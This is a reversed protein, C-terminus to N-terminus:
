GQQQQAPEVGIQSLYWHETPAYRAHLRATYSGLMALRQLVPWHIWVLAALMGARLMRLLTMTTAGPPLWIAVGEFGPTAYVEGYRYGYHVNLGILWPLLRRRQAADPIAHRMSPDDQFARALVGAVKSVDVAQVRILDGRQDSDM